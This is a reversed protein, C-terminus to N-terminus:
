DALADVLACLYLMRTRVHRELHETRRFSRGCHVCVRPKAEVSSRRAGRPSHSSQPLM